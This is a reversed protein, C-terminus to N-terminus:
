FAPDCTRSAVEKLDIEKDLNDEIYKLAQNSGGLMDM